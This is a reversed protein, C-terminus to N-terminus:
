HVGDLEMKGAEELLSFDFVPQTIKQVSHVRSPSHDDISIEHDLWRVSVWHEASHKAASSPPLHSEADQVREVDEHLSEVQWIIVELSMLIISDLTWEGGETSTKM